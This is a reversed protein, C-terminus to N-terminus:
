YRRWWSRGALECPGFGLLVRGAGGGQILQHREGERIVYRISPDGEERALAVRERGQRVYFTASEETEKALKALVPRILVEVQNIREFSKAIIHWKVGPYYAPTEPNDVLYGRSELTGILRM